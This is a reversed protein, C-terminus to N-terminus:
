GMVNYGGDIYHLGGTISRSADSALFAAVNGCDEITVLQHTPARRAAEDMMNDFNKIGSAARTALPGPSLTNIRIGKEGMESALERTVAELAAKVPGMMNYDSVVKSSGYFSMTMCSGGSAMLPECKKVMRIFSHVSIDMAARFGERSCDIVRGQLDERPAYAISHLLIDIKGWTKEIVDFLADLETDNTVDMPMFIPADVKEALPRVYPEAKQNLYTIALEAGCKRFASACGWAISHENAIGVILAKKGTLDIM